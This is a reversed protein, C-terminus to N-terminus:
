FWLIEFNFGDIWLFIGGLIFIYLVGIGDKTIHEFSKFYTKLRSTKVKETVFISMISM